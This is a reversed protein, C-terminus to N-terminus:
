RNHPTEPRVTLTVYAILGHYQVRVDVSYEESNVEVSPSGYACFHVEYPVRPLDELGTLEVVLTDGELSTHMDVHQWFIDEEAMTESDACLYGMGTLYVVADEIHHYASGKGIFNFIHTIAYFSPLLPQSFLFLRRFPPADDVSSSYLHLPTREYYLVDECIGFEYGNDRSGVYQIPTGRIAEKMSRQHMKDCPVLIIRPPEGWLSQIDGNARSIEERMVDPDDHNLCHHFGHNAIQVDFKKLLSFISGIQINQKFYSTTFGYLPKLGYKNALDLSNEYAHIDAIFSIGRENQIDYMGCDDIELSLFPTRIPIRSLSFLTRILLNQHLGAPSDERLQDIIVCTSMGSLVRVDYYVFDRKGQKIKGCPLPHAIYELEEERGRELFAEHIPHNGCRSLIITRGPLSFLHIIERETLSRHLFLTDLLLTSSRGLKEDELLSEVPMICYPIEWAGLSEVLDAPAGSPIDPLDSVIAVEQVLEPTRPGYLRTFNLTVSQFPKEFIIRFTDKNQLPIVLVGPTTDEMRYSDPLVIEITLGEPIDYFLIEGGSITRQQDWTVAAQAREWQVLELLTGNWVDLTKVFSFLQDLVKMGEGENVAKMHTVFSFVSGEVYNKLFEERALQVSDTVEGEPIYWTYEHGSPMQYISGAVIEGSEGFYSTDYEFGYKELLLPTDKTEQLCPARFGKVTFGARHMIELSKVLLIEQDQSSCAFENEYHAYGHLAIEHGREEAEHLAEMFAPSETLLDWEGHYPIVFFTAKLGYDELLTVFDTFYELPYGTSIDDCTITFAGEKGYPWPNVAIEPNFPEIISLILGSLFLCSLVASVVIFATLKRM